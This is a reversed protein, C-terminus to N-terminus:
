RTAGCPLMRTASVALAEEFCGLLELCIALNRYRRFGAWLPPRQWDGEPFFRLLLDRDLAPALFRYRPNDLAAYARDAEQWL